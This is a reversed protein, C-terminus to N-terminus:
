RRANNTGTAVQRQLRRAWLRDTIRATVHQRAASLAAKYLPSKMLHQWARRQGMAPRANDCVRFWLEGLVATFEPEPYLAARHNAASLRQLWDETWAVFAADPSWDMKNLRRLVYHNDVDQEIFPAGLTHLQETFIDRRRAKSESRTTQAPHERRLILPLPLAALSYDAGIRAWLDFDESIRLEESHPYRQLIDTRAMATGNVIGARFLREAAVRRTATPKRKIQGTPRGSMDARKFWGGVAAHHPNAQLFALQWTLRHPHALDDSDLFATYEGQAESIGHNRTHSIGRNGANHLLRIREDHYTRVIDAGEDTSGDNVAIIEFDTYSQQLISDIADGIYAARNYFPIVVSIRPM